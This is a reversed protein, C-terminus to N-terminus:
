YPDCRDFMEKVYDGYHALFCSSDVVVPYMLSIPCADDYRGPKPGGHKRWELAEEIRLKETEPYNKGDGYDHDRHCYCHSLEHFLLAERESLSSTLWFDLDLDIERWKHGYTCLGIVNEETIKKFGITVKHKFELNNQKSLWMYEDVLPQAKTDVGQYEPGFKTNPFVTACSYFLVGTWILALALYKM